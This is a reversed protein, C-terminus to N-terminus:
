GSLVPCEADAVGTIKPKEIEFMDVNWSGADRFGFKVTLIADASQM